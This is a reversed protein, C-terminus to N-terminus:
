LTHEDENAGTFEANPNTQYKLASMIAEAWFKGLVENATDTPHVGDKLATQNQYFYTYAQTDGIQVKGGNDNVLEENMRHYSQIYEDTEEDWVTSNMAGSVVYPVNSIIIKKEGSAVLRDIIQQMNQKYMDPPTDLTAKADNTGLMIHVIDVNDAFANIAKDLENNTGINAWDTTTLGSIGRNIVSFGKPLARMAYNVPNRAWNGNVADAVWGVNYGATISAGIFGIHLQYPSVFFTVKEDNAGVSQATITTTGAVIPLYSITKTYGNSDDL